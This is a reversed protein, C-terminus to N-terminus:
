ICVSLGVSFLGFIDLIELFGYTGIQLSHHLIDFTYIVKLFWTRSTMIETRNAQLKHLSVLHRSVM